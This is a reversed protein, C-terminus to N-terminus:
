KRTTLGLAILALAVLGTALCFAAPHAVALAVLAVDLPIAILLALACGAGPNPQTM